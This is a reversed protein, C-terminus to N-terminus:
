EHGAEILDEHFPDQRTQQSEGVQGNRFTRVLMTVSVGAVIFGFMAFALSNSQLPPSPIKSSGASYLRQLPAAPASALIATCKAKLATKSAEDDGAEKECQQCLSEISRRIDEAGCGETSSMSGCQQFKDLSYQEELVKSPISNCKLPLDKNQLIYNSYAWICICWPQGTFEDSWPGQGTVSSFGHPLRTVCVEHAGADEAAYTCGNAHNAGCNTMQKGYVNEEALAAKSQLSLLALLPVLSTAM